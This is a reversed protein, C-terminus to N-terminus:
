YILTILLYENFFTLLKLLCCSTIQIRYHFQKKKTYCKYIYVNPSLFNSNRKYLSTVHKINTKIQNKIDWDVIKLEGSGFDGIHAILIGTVGADPTQGDTLM